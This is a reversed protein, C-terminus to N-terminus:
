WPTPTVADVRAHLSHGKRSKCITPPHRDCIDCDFWTVSNRLRWGESGSVSASKLGPAMHGGALRHDAIVRIGEPRAASSLGHPERERNLYGRLTKKAAFVATVICTIACRCVTRNFWV